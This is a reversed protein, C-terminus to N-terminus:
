GGQNRTKDNKGLPIWYCDGTWMDLPGQIHLLWMMMMMMMM